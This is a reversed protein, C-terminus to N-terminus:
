KKAKDKFAGDKKKLYLWCTTSFVVIALCVSSLMLVLETAYSGKFDVHGVVSKLFNDILHPPHGPLWASIVHPVGLFGGLLSLVALAGLPFKCLFGGEQPKISLKFAKEM